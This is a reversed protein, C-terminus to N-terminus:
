VDGCLFATHHSPLLARPQSLRQSLSLGVVTHGQALGKVMWVVPQLCGERWSHKPPTPLTSRVLSPASPWPMLLTAAPVVPNEGVLHRTPQTLRHGMGPRIYAKEGPEKCFPKAWARGCSLFVQEGTGLFLVATSDKKVKEGTM